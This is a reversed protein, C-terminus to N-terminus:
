NYNKQFPTLNVLQATENKSYMYARFRSLINLILYQVGYKIKIIVM